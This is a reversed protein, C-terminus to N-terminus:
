QSTAGSKAASKPDSIRDLLERYGPSERLLRGGLARLRDVEEASLVFSTPLNMFHRQEQPDEIADFSVDIAEFTLKQV